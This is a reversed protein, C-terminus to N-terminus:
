GFTQDVYQCYVRCRRYYIDEQESDYFFLCLLDEGLLVILGIVVIYFTPAFRKLGHKRADEKDVIVNRDRFDNVMENVTQTSPARQFM